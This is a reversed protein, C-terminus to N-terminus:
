VIKPHILSMIISSIGLSHLVQNLNMTKRTGQWAKDGDASMVVSKSLKSQLASRKKEDARTTNLKKLCRRTMLIM